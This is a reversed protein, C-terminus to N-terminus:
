KRKMLHFGCSKFFVSKLHKECTFIVRLNDTKLQSHNSVHYNLWVHDSSVLSYMYPRHSYIHQGIDNIIEVLIRFDSVGQVDEIGIIASFAFRTNELDLHVPENIDIECWNTNSLEKRYSFYDPIKNGPFICSYQHDKLHGESLLCIQLDDGMNERLGHCNSFEIWELMPLDKINNFQFRELSTCGDAAVEKINPPLEPIEELQNCGNLYLDKLGVFTNFWTPLSVIASGSLDLFRLSSPCDRQILFESETLVHNGLILAPFITGVHFLTEPTNFWPSRRAEELFIALSVCGKASM